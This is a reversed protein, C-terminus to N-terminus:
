IGLVRTLRIIAAEYQESSSAVASIQTKFSEYVGWSRKAAKEADALIKSIKTESDAAKQAKEAAIEEAHANAYAIGRETIANIKAMFETHTM